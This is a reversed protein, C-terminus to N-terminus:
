GAAHAAERSTSDSGHKGSSRGSSISATIAATRANKSPSGYHTDQDGSEGAEDPAMEGVVQDGAPVHLDEADVAPAAAHVVDLVEAVPHLQDFAVQPVGVGDPADEAVHARVRM